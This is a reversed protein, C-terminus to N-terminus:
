KTKLRNFIEMKKEPYIKIYIEIPSLNTNSRLKNEKKLNSLETGTITCPCCRLDLKMVRKTYGISVLDEYLNSKENLKNRSEEHGYYRLWQIELDVLKNLEEITM